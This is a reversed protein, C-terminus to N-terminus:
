HRRRERRTPERCRRRTAADAADRREAHRRPTPTPPPTDSLEADDASTMTPTLEYPPPTAADHREAEEASMAADAYRPASACSLCSMKAAAHCSMPLPTPPLMEDDASPLM